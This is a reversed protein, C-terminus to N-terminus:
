LVTWRGGRGPGWVFWACTISDTGRTDGRFRPRESLVYVDSPHTQHLERRSKSEAFTLRALMAVTRRPDNSRWAIAMEAFERAHTFPPNFVAMDAAPWRERLADGCFVQDIYDRATEARIPDIEIGKTKYGAFVTLIEGVGCCPDFVSDCSPLQHKIAIVVDEPTPYYDNAIRALATM